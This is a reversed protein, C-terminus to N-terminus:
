QYQANAQPQTAAELIGTQRPLDVGVLLGCFGRLQLLDFQGIGSFGLRWGLLESAPPARWGVSRVATHNRGFIMLEDDGEEQRSGFLRSLYHVGRRRQSGHLFRETCATDSAQVAHTKLGVGPTAM